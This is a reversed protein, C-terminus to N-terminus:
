LICFLGALCQKAVVDSSENVHPSVAFFFVDLVVLPLILRLFFLVFVRPFPSFVDLM